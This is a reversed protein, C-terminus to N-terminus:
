NPDCTKYPPYKSPKNNFYVNRCSNIQTFTLYNNVINDFKEGALLRILFNCAYVGCESGDKQYSKTNIKYIPLKGTKKEYFNKFDNIIKNINDIPENGMSDCFYIHGNSINIYLAVWHSGHQGHKDHNFIIGLQKINKKLYENFNLKHLSCYSLENCDLPVAGLFKFDPYIQEYQQMIENINQTSLWEKHDDPGIPRFTNLTIDNFMEKVLENMFEQQTLCFEDNGCVTDFRKYLEQLLYAKNKKVEILASDNINVNSKPSLRVTSNYRNYAKAMAILQELSFCTKNTKDYKGPACTNNKTSM